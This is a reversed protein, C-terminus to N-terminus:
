LACGLNDPDCYDVEVGAPSNPCQDYQDPVGDGDADRDCGPPFPQRGLACLNAVHGTLEDCADEVDRPNTPDATYADRWGVQNGPALECYASGAPPQRDTDDWVPTLNEHHAWNDCWDAPSICNTTPSQDPPALPDIVCLGEECTEVASAIHYSWASGAPYRIVVKYVLDDCGGATVALESCWAGDPGRLDAECLADVAGLMTTARNYCGDDAHCYNACENFYNGAAAKGYLNRPVCTANPECADRCGIEEPTAGARLADYREFVTGARGSVDFDCQDTAEDATAWFGGDNPPLPARVVLRGDANSQELSPHVGAIEIDRVLQEGAHERVQAFSPAWDSNAWSARVSGGDGERVCEKAEFRHDRNFNYNVEGTGEADSVTRGRYVFDAGREFERDSAQVRCVPVLDHKEAGETGEDDTAVEVRQALLEWENHQNCQYVGETTEQVGLDPQDSSVCRHAVIKAQENVVETEEEGVCHDAPLDQLACPMCAAPTPAPTVECGWNTYIGTLTATSYGAEYYNIYVETLDASNVAGDGNIDFAACADIERAEVEVEEAEACGGALLVCGWIAGTLRQKRM